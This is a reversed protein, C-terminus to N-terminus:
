GTDQKDWNGDTSGLLMKFINGTSPETDVIDRPVEYYQKQDNDLIDLRQRGIENDGFRIFQIGVHELRGTEWLHNVLRTIHDQVTSLCEQGQSWVGDTLIYINVPPKEEVRSSWSSRKNMQTRYYNPLIKNLAIGMQCQGGPKVKEFNKMLGNRHKQRDDHECSNAFRLEIGDPDKTKVLYALAEFVRKVEKWHQHMSASDDILFIQDRGHLRKLWEQGQLPPTRADAKKMRIYNLAKDVSAVPLDRQGVPASSHQFSSNIGSVPTQQPVDITHRAMVHLSQRSIDEEEISLATSFPRAGPNTSITARRDPRYTSRGPSEYSSQIPPTGTTVLGLGVPLDPPLQVPMSYRANTTATPPAELEIARTLDEYVRLADPRRSPDQAMMGGVILVVRSVINDINTRRAHCAEKHVDKVVDLVKTTDHFCGSYGTQALSPIDATAKIRRENYDILGNYGFVSWVAAESIVCALAWIDKSPHAQKISQQRFRDKEGRFYEPASYMKTGHVDRLQTEDSDDALVFGALGLDILKYSVDFPSDNNM